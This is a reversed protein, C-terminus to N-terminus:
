KMGGMWHDKSKPFGSVANPALDVNGILSASAQCVLGPMVFHM